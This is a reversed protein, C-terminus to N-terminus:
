QPDTAQYPFSARPRKTSAPPNHFGVPPSNRWKGVSTPSASVTLSLQAVRVRIMAVRARHHRNRKFYIHGRKHKMTNHSQLKLNERIQQYVRNALNLQSCFRTLLGILILSQLLPDARLTLQPNRHMRRQPSLIITYISTGFKLEARM